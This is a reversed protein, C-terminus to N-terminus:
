KWDGRLDSVKEFMIETTVQESPVAPGAEIELRSWFRCPMGKCARGKARSFYSGWLGKLAVPVVPVPSRKLTIVEYLM